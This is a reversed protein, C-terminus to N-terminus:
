SDFTHEIIPSQGATTLLGEQPGLDALFAAYKAGAGTNYLVVTEDSEFTDRVKRAAALTAAGEPCAYIGETSALEDIARRIEDDDVVVMAGGSARVKQLVLAGEAPAPVRLGAAITQPEGAIAPVEDLGAAFADAIPAAGQAQVGILRPIPDNSWGLALAEEAAKIAAIAAVGGGVPLVIASPFHMELDPGLADFVELWATKKGELRYPENFTAALFAGEERAIDAARAGADAISGDVLELTAGAAVVEAQNMAPASRSMTVHLKVGARAAYLAWAGGANGASPMVISQAGLTHARNLGLFAGRAKFTGGPLGSDDKVFITTGVADSLRPAALLPTELEGLSAPADLPPLLEAFRLFSPPRARVARLDVPHSLDYRCLLTGGCTCRQHLEDADYTAGCRACELHILLSPM